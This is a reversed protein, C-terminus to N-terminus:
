LQVRVMIPVTKFVLNLHLILDPNFDMAPGLSFLVTFEREMSTKFSFYQSTKDKQGTSIYM